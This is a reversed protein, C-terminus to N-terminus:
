NASVDKDTERLGSTEQLEASIYHLQRQKLVEGVSEDEGNHTLLLQKFVTQRFTKPSYPLM